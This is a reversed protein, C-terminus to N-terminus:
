IKNQENKRMLGVFICIIISFQFNPISFQSNEREYTLLPHGFPPHPRTLQSNLISFQSNLISFKEILGMPGM